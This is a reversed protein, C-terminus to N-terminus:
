PSLRLARLAPTLVSRAGGPEVVVLRAALRERLALALAEDEGLVLLATALADARTADAAVVSVSVLRHSVPEGSRPDLLHSVSGTATRRRNRYTGSTAVAAGRLALVVEGVAGPDELSVRWAARGRRPDGARVEGGIDVLYRRIGATELYRAVADVGHGKAIGSLDLTVGPVTRRLAPPRERTEIHGFGVQRAAAARTAADAPIGGDPGFGWARVLPAVTPDFAGGSLGHVARAERLVALLAPSAARWDLGPTTNFRSVESDARWNSLAANVEELVAEIGSALAADGPEGAALEAVVRFATGMTRGEVVVERAGAAVAVTAAVLLLTCPLWRM